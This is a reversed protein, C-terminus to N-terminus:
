LAVLEGKATRVAPTRRKAIRFGRCNAQPFRQSGSLRSTSQRSREKARGRNQLRDITAETPSPIKEHRLPDLSGVWHGATPGLGANLSKVVNKATAQSGM